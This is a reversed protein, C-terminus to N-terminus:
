FFNQPPNGWSNKNEVDTEWVAAAKFFDKSPEALQAKCKGGLRRRPGFNRSNNFTEVM